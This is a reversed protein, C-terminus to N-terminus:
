PTPLEDDDDSTGEYSTWTGDDDLDDCWSDGAGEGECYERVDDSDYSPDSDTSSWDDGDYDDDGGEKAARAADCWTKDEEYYYDCHERIEETGYGYSDWSDADSSEEDAMKAALAADCWAEDDEYYEDCWEAVSETGM